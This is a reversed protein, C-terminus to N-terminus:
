STTPLQALGELREYQARHDVRRPRRTGDELAVIPEGAPIQEQVPTTLPDIEEEKSHAYEVAEGMWM